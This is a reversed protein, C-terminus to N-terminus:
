PVAALLAEAGLHLEGTPSFGLSAYFAQADLNDDGTLLTLEEAGLERCLCFVCGMLGRGVGQRRFGEGVYLETVEVSPKEYCFSHKVQCCCFGALGGGQAQAVFVREGGPAALSAAVQGPTRSSPGNFAANLCVLGAADGPSAPRFSVAM